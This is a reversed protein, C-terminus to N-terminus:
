RNAYINDAEVAPDSPTYEGTTADLTTIGTVGDPGASFLLYSTWTAGTTAANRYYYIYQNGWPDLFANTVPSSGTALPLDAAADSILSFKGVEVFLRGATPLGKPGLKGVLSNFLVYPTQGASVASATPVVVTTGAQPYDGYQLKYAELAQALSSLEAKAQSIASRERVGRMVGFTIAALIGIIAIVTLLEILTFARNGVQRNLCAERAPPRALTHMLPICGFCDM